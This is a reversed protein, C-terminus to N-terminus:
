RRQPKGVKRRARVTEAIEKRVERGARTPVSVVLYKQKSFIIPTEVTVTVARNEKASHVILRMPLPNASELNKQAARVVRDHGNVGPMDSPYTHLHGLYRYWRQREKGPPPAINLLAFSKHLTHKSSFVKFEKQLAAMEEIPDGPGFRNNIQVLIHLATHDHVLSGM